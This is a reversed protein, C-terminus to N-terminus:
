TGVRPCFNMPRSAAATTFPSPLATKRLQPRSEGLCRRRRRKCRFHAGGLDLAEEPYLTAHIGGYIVWAGRERALKGSKTAACLM